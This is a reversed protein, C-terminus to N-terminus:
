IHILSLTSTTGQDISLIFEEMTKKREKEIIDFSTYLLCAITEVDSVVHTAILIIHDNALQEFVHRLSVREKPDLGATPEDFLLLQPNGLLAQAVLQRKYM